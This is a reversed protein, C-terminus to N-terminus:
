SHFGETPEKDKKMVFVRGTVKSTDECLELVKKAVIDPSIAAEMFQPFFKEYAETATDSPSICNVQISREALEQSLGVTLDEIARKSVYYPLWGKAGNEFTGSLNIIKSGYIMHPIFAHALLTPAITGVYYTDLIIKQDFTDFEQDAFVEDKGHWMGAINVLVNIESEKDKILKVANNISDTSTLDTIVIEAKGGKQTILEKTEELGKQNRALLYVFFENEALTTAVARGIGTSAGTVIAVKM